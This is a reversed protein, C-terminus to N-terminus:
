RRNELRGLLRLCHFNQSDVKLGDKVTRLAEQPQGLHFYLWALRSCDTADLESRREELDQVVDRLLSQKEEVSLHFDPYSHLVSNIRNATNSLDYTAVNSQRCIQALAHLEGPIDGMDKKLDAVKKWIVHVPVSASDPKEIYKLLCEVVDNMGTPDNLEQYLDAFLLWGYSHHTAVYTIIPKVEELTRERKSIAEAVSSFLRQVRLQSNSKGAPNRAPGFLHLLETDADISARWTSTVLKRAGFLRAALPVNIELDDRADSPIEEVFSCQVLENIADRVNMKENAPRLLVAEIAIGPVSSRWNCLTLFVRKAAPSLNNYSREFLALLAEEQSAVIREVKAARRSKALEGLLLKIIYPHGNSEEIIEELYPDTLLSSIGLYNAAQEILQRCEDDTMGKLDVAYDGTFKRERSTILVKNPVRIFTDLWSFTDTPNATTEFNDFVFLTPGVSSRAFEDALFQVRNFQKGKWGSPELLRAYEEAFDEKSIGHPRVAKPGETRLDVDRASFWVIIQYRQNSEKLLSHIVSLALYTKGIGGYGTLAIIPHRDELLLQDKLERELQHRAVYGSPLPPVNTFSSGIVTLQGLPETESPPLQEAPALYPKSSKRLRDNTIYSLLEHDKDNYNGNAIWFDTAEPNSEVLEVLRFDDLLVYVGDPFNYDASRKLSEFKDTTHLWPTVRYKGSLNRHLYAWPRKFLDFNEIFLNVAQELNPCAKSLDTPYPAGHGRTANRLHVFERFWQRCPVKPGVPEVTVGVCKLCDKVMAVIQYQWTGPGSNLSLQRQSERAEPYIYQAPAGVVIEDLGSNWEGLGDSRVLHRIQRYRHREREDRISAILGAIALKMVMESQYMLVDFLAADSETREISIRARMREVPLLAMKNVM